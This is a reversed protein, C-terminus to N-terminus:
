ILKVKATDLAAQFDEGPLQDSVILDVDELPCVRHLARKGYKASGAVVVIKSAHACMARAIAAEDFNADMPGVEADLAAVGIVAYDAHFQTIQALAVPGVTEVNDAAFSGGLLFVRAQGSGLVRAILLSNTIVTIDQVDALAKACALTTTGTDIFCTDGPSILSRLKQAIIAKEAAQESMREEFSSEVHLRIRRAGGHVKQLAGTEALHALDRRITEASVGFHTALDPVSM